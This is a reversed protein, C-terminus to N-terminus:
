RLPRQPPKCIRIFRPHSIPQGALITGGRQDSSTSNCRTKVLRMADDESELWLTKDAEILQHSSATLQEARTDFGCALETM